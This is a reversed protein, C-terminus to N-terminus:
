GSGWRPSCFYVSNRDFHSVLEEITTRIAKGRSWEPVNGLSMIEHEGRETKTGLSIAVHKRWEVFYVFDGPLPEASHPDDLDLRIGRGCILRGIEGHPNL